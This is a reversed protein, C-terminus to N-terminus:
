SVMCEQKLTSTAHFPRAVTRLFRRFPRDSRDARTADRKFFTRETGRADCHGPVRRSPHATSRGVGRGRERCASAAASTSGRAREEPEARTGPSSTRSTTRELLTGVRSADSRAAERSVVSVRPRRALSSSKRWCHTTPQSLFARLTQHRRLARAPRGGDDRRAGRNRSRLRTWSERSHYSVPSSFLRRAAARSAATARRRAMTRALTRRSRGRTACTAGRVRHTRRAEEPDGSVVRWGGEPREAVLFAVRFPAARATSSRRARNRRWM